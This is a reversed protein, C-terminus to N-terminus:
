GERENKHYCAALYGIMKSFSEMAQATQLYIEKKQLRLILQGYLANLALEVDSVENGAESKLRFDILNGTAMTVIQRYRIDNAKQLLFYHLETLEDVNNKLIQLHGKQEVKEKYMMESLNDYWDYMEKATDEALEFRDIVKEKVQKMNFGLARLLDEVQWMYLIYEAINSKKKERAILMSNWIDTRCNCDEREPKDRLVGGREM